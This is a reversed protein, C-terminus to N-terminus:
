ITKKWRNIVSSLALRHWSKFTESQAMRIFALRKNQVQSHSDQATGVAGSAKHICQVAISGLVPMFLCDDATVSHIKEKEMPIHGWRKRTLVNRITYKNVPYTQELECKRAQGSGHLYRLMLVDDETLKANGNAEGCTYPTFSQPPAVVEGRYEAQKELYRQYLADM